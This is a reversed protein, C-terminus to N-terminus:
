VTSPLVLESRRKLLQRKPRWLLVLLKYQNSIVEVRLPMMNSDRDPWRGEWKVPTFSGAHRATAIWPFVEAGLVRPWCDPREFHKEWAPSCIAENRRLALVEVSVQSPDLVVGALPVRHFEVYRRLAAHISTEFINALDVVAGLGVEYEAAMETFRRGQFLLESSVQNADREEIIKTVPSLTRENDAHAPANQSPLIAHGVEHLARFRRRGANTIAPNVHVKRRRRDLIAHVKGRGLLGRVAKRIHFPAEAITAAAFLDDDGRSLEAAAIVDEVPTPLRDGVEARELLLRSVGTIEQRNENDRLM